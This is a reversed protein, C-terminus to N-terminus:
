KPTSKAKLVTEAREQVARAVFTSISEGAREAARSVIEHTPDDLYGTVPHPFGKRPRRRKSRDGKRPM